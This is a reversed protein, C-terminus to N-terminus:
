AGSKEKRAPLDQYSIIKRFRKRHKVPKNSINTHVLLCLERSLERALRRKRNIFVFPETAMAVVVSIENQSVGWKFGAPHRNRQRFQRNKKPMLVIAGLKKKEPPKGLRAARIKRHCSFIAGQPKNERGPPMKKITNKAPCMPSKGTRM